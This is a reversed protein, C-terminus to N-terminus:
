EFMLLVLMVSLWISQWFATMAWHIGTPDSDSFKAWNGFMIGIGLIPIYYKWMKKMIMEKPEGGYGCNWYDSWCYAFWFCDCFSFYQRGYNCM